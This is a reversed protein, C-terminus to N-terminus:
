DLVDWTTNITHLLADSSDYLELRVDGGGEAILDIYTGTSDSVGDPAGVVACEPVSLSLLRKQGFDLFSGDSPNAYPIFGLIPGGALSMIRDGVNLVGSLQLSFTGPNNISFGHAVSFCGYQFLTVDNLSGTMLGDPDQGTYTVTFNTDDATDVQMDFQGSFGILVDTAEMIEINIDVTSVVNMVPIVLTVASFAIDISGNVLEGSDDLDCAVLSLNVTDGASFDGSSDVDNWTLTATGDPANACSAVPAVGLKLQDIIALAVETFGPFLGQAAVAIEAADQMNDTTFNFAHVGGDGNDDNGDLNDSGGGGTAIISVLGLVAIPVILVSRLSVPIVLPNKKM